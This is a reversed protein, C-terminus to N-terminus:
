GRVAYGRRVCGRLPLNPRPATGLEFFDGPDRLRRVLRLPLLEGNNGCGRATARMPSCRRSRVLYSATTTPSSATSPGVFAVERSHVLYLRKRHDYVMRPEGDISGTGTPFSTVVFPPVPGDSRRYQIVDCVGAARHYRGLRDRHELRTPAADQAPEAM